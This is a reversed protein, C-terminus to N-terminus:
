RGVEASDRTELRRDCIHVSIDFLQSSVDVLQVLLDVVAVPLLFIDLVIDVQPLAQALDVRKLSVDSVKLRAVGFRIVVTENALGLIELQLAALQVGFALPDVPLHM